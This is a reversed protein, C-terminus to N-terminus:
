ILRYPSARRTWMNGPYDKALREYVEKLFARNHEKKFRSVGALYIAEPVSDTGPYDAIVTAFAALAEPLRDYDFHYKGMGLLLSAILEEPNLFGVTRHHERGDPGLTLLAPTWKITYETALPQADFAVQLPVFHGNVFRIVESNPYTVADM